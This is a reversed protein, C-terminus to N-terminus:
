ATAHKRIILKQFGSCDVVFDVNLKEENSLCVSNINNFEDTEISVVVDDIISIGMKIAIDELYIVLKRADIHFGYETDDELNIKGDRSLYFLYNINDLTDGLSIATKCNNLVIEKNGIINKKDTYFDYFGHFWSSGDQNWNNFMVGNKITGGTNNIFDDIKIGLDKLFINISPTLGEGPGLIGIEKSRVITLDISPFKKKFLLASICGATGGGVVVVKM